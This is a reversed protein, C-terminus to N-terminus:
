IINQNNRIGEFVWYINKSPFPECLGLVTFNDFLHSYRSKVAEADKFHRVHNQYPFNPVTGIFRTGSPIRDVITLDENIHELVETCVVADYDKHAKLVNTDTLANGVYFDARSLNFNQALEIATSSFDFGTYKEIGYHILMQAFQGRGCGIELVRTQTSNRLIRDLIVSWVFYYRSNSFHKEYESHNAYVFDYFGPSSEFGETSDSNKLFTKNFKFYIKNGLLYSRLKIYKYISSSSTNKSIKPEKTNDIKQLM